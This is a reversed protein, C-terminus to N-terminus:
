TNGLAAWQAATKTGGWRYTGSGSVNYTNDRFRNNAVAAIPDGCCGAATDQVGTWGVNWTITNHHVNLGILNPDQAGRNADTASIGGENGVVVNGHVEVNRSDNVRIGGNGGGQTAACVGGGFGFNNRRVTNNRIIGPGNSIEAFIGTAWNDEARNNEFLFNTNGTGDVWLGNGCNHHSFNGRVILNAAHVWKTGGGEWGPANEALWNNYAIENNEILVNDGGGGLGMQHNHHIYSNVVRSNDHTHIGHGLNERVELNSWTWATQAGRNVGQQTDNVFREIIFNQILVNNSPDQVLYKTTGHGTLISRRVNGASLAGVWRDGSQVPISAGVNYTGAALCYTAGASHANAVTVLNSGAAVQVGACGTTVVTTTTTPAVTTTTAPTTTTTPPLTTTTTPATTVTTTPASTTTPTTTTTAEVTTTTAETTTTSESTTTSGTTTTTEVVTTETSTSTPATTTTLQCQWHDPNASCLGVAKGPDAGLPATVGALACLLIFVVSWARFRVM